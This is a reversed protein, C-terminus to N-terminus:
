SGASAVKLTDKSVAQLNTKVVDYPVPVVNHQNDSIPKASIKKGNRHNARGKKQKTKTTRTISM